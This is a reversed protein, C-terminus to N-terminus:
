NSPCILNINEIKDLWPAPYNEYKEVQSLANYQDFYERAIKLKGTMMSYYVLCRLTNPKSGYKFDNTDLKNKTFTFNREHDIAETFELIKWEKSDIARYAILIFQKLLEKGAESQVRTQMLRKFGQISPIDTDFLTEMIIRYDILVPLEINSLATSRLFAKGEPLTSTQVGSLFQDAAKKAKDLEPEKPPVPIPASTPPETIVSPDTKIKGKSKGPSQATLSLGFLVTIITAYKVIEM